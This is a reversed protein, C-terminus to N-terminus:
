RAAGRLDKLVDAAQWETGERISVVRGQRDVVATRLSHVIDEPSGSGRDVTLGFREAFRDVDEAEGTVFRWVRPDAGLREAHARLVPPRDYAPDITVSLLRAGALVPDSQIGRQVALFQRDLAPCFTPLPCRTYVFTVAWPVGRLSATTFPEGHDDTFSAEPVPEGQRLRPDAVRPVSADAPLPERRGTPAVRSLWADGEDVVLTATVIDGPRAADLWRPDKTKFPMTMGPMFGKIDEHRIVIEQRGRDVSLVQGTLEYQRAPPERRCGTALLTVVALLVLSHRM